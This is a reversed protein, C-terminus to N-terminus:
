LMAKANKKRLSPLHLPAPNLSEKLISPCTRSRKPNPDNNLGHGAIQKRLQRNISLPPLPRLRYIHYASSTIEKEPSFPPPITTTLTNNELKWKEEKKVSQSVSEREKEKKKIGPHHICKGEVKPRKFRLGPSNHLVTTTSSEAVSCVGAPDVCEPM